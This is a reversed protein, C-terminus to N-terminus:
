KMLDTEAYLETVPVDIGIEPLHLTAGAGRTSETWDAPGTARHLVTAGPHRSEVIIYRRITEVARYEIPKEIRDTRDSGPSVVEVVIVAGPILRDTGPSKTCTVLADPFRVTNGVTAIGADPGLPTCGTGHLRTRLAFYLNQCIQSHNRTGGVMGVPQVGDFEYRESQAEAWDLFAERTM